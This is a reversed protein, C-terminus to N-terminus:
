GRCDYTKQKRSKKGLNWNYRMLFITRANLSKFITANDHIVHAATQFINCVVCNFVKSVSNERVNVKCTFIGSLGTTSNIEITHNTRNTSCKLAVVTERYAFKRNEGYNGTQIFQWDFLRPKAKRLFPTNVTFCLCPTQTFFRLSFRDECSYFNDYSM